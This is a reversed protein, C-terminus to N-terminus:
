GRQTWGVTIGQEVMRQVVQWQKLSLSLEHQNIIDHALEPVRQYFEGYQSLGITSDDDTAQIARGVVGDLVAGLSIPDTMEQRMIRQAETPQQGFRRINEQTGM